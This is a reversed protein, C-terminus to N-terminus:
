RKISGVPTTGKWVECTPCDPDESAAKLAQDDNDALLDKGKVIKGTVEGRKYVRYHRMKGLM